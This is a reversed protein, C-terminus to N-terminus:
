YFRFSKNISNFTFMNIGLRKKCYYNKLLNFLVNTISCSLAAGLINFYYIFIVALIFDLLTSFLLLFMNLRNNGTINLLISNSGSAINFFQGILLIILSPYADQFEAGWFGLILKGFILFLAFITISLFSFLSSLKKIINQIQQVKGEHYLVSFKPMLSSNSILLIFVQINSLRWLISFVGLDTHKGFYGFVFMEVSNFIPALLSIAFFSGSWLAIKSSASISKVPKASFNKWAGIQVFGIVIRSVLYIFVIAETHIDKNIFFYYVLVIPLIILSIMNPDSLVGYSNKGIGVLLNSYTKSIVHPIISLAILIFLFYLNSDRLGYLAVYKSTLILGIAIFLAVGGNILISSKLITLIKDFFGNKHAIAVQKIMLQDAGLMSITALIVGVQLTLNYVGLGESGSFKTIVISLLFGTLLGLIKLLLVWFSKGAIDAFHIDLSKLYTSLYTSISM